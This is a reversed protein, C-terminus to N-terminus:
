LMQSRPCRARSFRKVGLCSSLGMFRSSLPRSCPSNLHQNLLCGSSPMVYPRITARQAVKLSPRALNLAAKTMSSAM